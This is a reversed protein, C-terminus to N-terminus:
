EIEVKEILNKSMADMYKKANNLDKVKKKFTKKNTLENWQNDQSEANLSPPANQLRIAEKINEEIMEFQAEIDPNDYKNL